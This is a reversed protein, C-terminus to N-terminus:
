WNCKRVGAPHNIPCSVLIAQWIEDFPQFTLSFIRYCGDTSPTRTVWIACGATICCRSPVTYRSAAPAFRSRPSKRLRVCYSIPFLEDSDRRSIESPYSNWGITFVVEDVYIDGTVAKGHVRTVDVSFQGLCAKRIPIDLRLVCLVTLFEDRPVQIVGASACRGIRVCFCM